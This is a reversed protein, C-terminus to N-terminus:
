VLAKILPSYLVFRWAAHHWWNEEVDVRITKILDECYELVTYMEGYVITANDEASICIVKDGTKFM